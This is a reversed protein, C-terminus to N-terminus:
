KSYLALTREVVKDWHYKTCIYEQSRMSMNQREEEHALLYELKDRLDQVNGKRFTFACDEVVEANEPIDSILCCRSYSMAELLGVSMGEIDSPLVFLWANSYLEELLSGQVFGTMIVRDDMSCMQKIQEMYEQSHSCGGAIVLKKDTKIGKFAEVLYPVGKEPVIRALFLIYNEKKLGYKETIEKPERLIPRNIGNPIHVTERQYEQLFYEQVNRSLVIVEDAYKAAIKEGLKIMRSAFGNWKSRQWDLGHVTAITRIGFLKPIWLMICPGEAHFHIVHNKRFASRATALITAFFSYVIANLKSSRFTPITYLRTGYFIKGRKEDFERGSVHYGSRNYVDVQNGLKVLRTSLEEVVIEVGGERSPIRKHGIMSVKFKGHKKRAIKEEKRKERKEKWLYYLFATNTDLYRPFLRKPDQLMRWFWEVCLEQMWKPARKVTGAHFDFGAGVGIMVGTVKGQHAAMWKEQKPAGLGVWIFDPKADNIKDIIQLDEEATMPCFPPSFSGTIQLKPFEQKLKGTLKNLTDQTSGYFFHRYGCEESLAFLLPMLDPGPVRGAKEYGHRRQTISLPKGDPLNMASGNQVRRYEEDRYAMVTTHVNSVCVYEGRLEELHNDLYEVTQEMNLININTKLIETYDLRNM